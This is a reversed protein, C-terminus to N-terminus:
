TITGRRKTTLKDSKDLQIDLELRRNGNLERCRSTSNGLNATVIERQEHNTLSTINISKPRTTDTKSILNATWSLVCEGM